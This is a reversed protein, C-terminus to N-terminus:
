RLRMYDEVRDDPAVRDNPPPAAKRSKVNPSLWSTEAFLNVPRILRAGGDRVLPKWSWGASYRSHSTLFADFPIVWAIGKDFSGEGFVEAPVNTKTIYASITTGNNFVKSLTLTMGRDGALYQGYSLSTSIGEIPTEWYGTIHGTDAKLEQFQFNQHFDRMRVKNYDVGVAWRSAPQRYLVETGVGGYMSEFYGTYGTWYWNQALRDTKSLSLSTLTVRSTTLFQKTYTRVRPMNSWGEDKFNDYNDFLRASMVGSLKTNWPMELGLSM